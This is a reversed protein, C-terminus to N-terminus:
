AHELAERMNPVSLTHSSPFRANRKQIEVAPVQGKAVADADRWRLAVKAAARGTPADLRVWIRKPKGTRENVLRELALSAELSIASLGRERKSVVSQRVGLLRAVKAQTGIKKRLFGYKAPSLPRREIMLIAQWVACGTCAFYEQTFITLRLIM